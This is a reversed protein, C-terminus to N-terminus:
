RTETLVPSPFFIPVGSSIAAHLETLPLERGPSWLSDPILPGLSCYCWQKSTCLGSQMHLHVDQIVQHLRLPVVVYLENLRHLKEWQFAELERNTM